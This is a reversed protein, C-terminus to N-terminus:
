HSDSSEATVEFAAIQPARAPPSQGQTAPHRFTFLGPTDCLDDYFREHDDDVVVWRAEFHERIDSMEVRVSVREVDGTERPVDVRITRPANGRTLTKYREWLVPDISATFQPDLGCAYTNHHNYYFYVPFVDWDDTFILEGPDSNQRVYDMARKIKRIPYRCTASSRAHDLTVCAIVVVGMCLLMPLRRLIALIHPFAKLERGIAACTSGFGAWMVASGILCFVPWYEIFRKARLCLALFAINLLVLPLVDRSLLRNWTFRFVLSVGALTLVFASMQLWDYPAYASWESGVDKPGSTQLGTEFVQLKLFEFMSASYPHSLLAAGLGVFSALVLWGLNKWEGGVVLWVAGFTGVLLTGFIFGGAYLHGYCFLGIALVIFRRGLCAYLILLMLVLSASPARIYAMRLYFDGPMAGLALIWFWMPGLELRHIILSCLLAVCGFLLVNLAKAGLIYRDSHWTRLFRKFTRTGTSRSSTSAWQVVPEPLHDAIFASAHVFPMLLVHFGHHHSVFRERNFITHRLWPFTDPFGGDPTPLLVAMKTHYFSDHGAPEYSGSQVVAM